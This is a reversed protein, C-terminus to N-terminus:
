VKNAITPMYPPIDHPLCPNAVPTHFLYSDTQPISFTLVARPKTKGGKTLRKRSSLLLRGVIMLYKKSGSM